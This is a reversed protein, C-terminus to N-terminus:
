PKATCTQLCYSRLEMHLQKLFSLANLQMHLRELSEAVKEAIGCTANGVKWDGCRRGKALLAAKQNLEGRTTTTPSSSFCTPAAPWGSEMFWTSGVPGVLWARISDLPIETWFGMM